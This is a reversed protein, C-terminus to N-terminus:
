SHSTGTEKQDNAQKLNVQINDNSTPIIDHRALSYNATTHLSSVDATHFISHM